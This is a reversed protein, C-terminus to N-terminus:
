KGFLFEGKAVLISNCCPNSYLGDVESFSISPRPYYYFAAFGTLLMLAGLGKANQRWFGRRYVAMSKQIGRLAFSQLPTTLQRATEAWGRVRGLDVKRNRDM